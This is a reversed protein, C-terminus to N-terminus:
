IESLSYTKIWDFDWLDKYMKPDFEPILDFADQVSNSIPLVFYQCGTACAFLHFYTAFAHSFMSAPTHKFGGSGAQQHPKLELASLPTKALGPPSRAAPVSM